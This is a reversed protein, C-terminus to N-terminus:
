PGDASSAAVEEASGTERAHAQPIRMIMGALLVARAIQDFDNGSRDLLFVLGANVARVLQRTEIREAVMVIRPSRPAWGRSALELSRLVPESVRTTMILLVDPEHAPFPPLVTIDSRASLLAVAKDRTGPDGAFIRVTVTRM